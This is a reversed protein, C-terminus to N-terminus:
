DVTSAVDQERSTIKWLKSYDQLVIKCQYYLSERADFEATTKDSEGILRQWDKHLACTTDLKWIVGLEFTWKILHAIITIGLTFTIHHVNRWIILRRWTTMKKPPNDMSKNM